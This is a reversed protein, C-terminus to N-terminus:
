IGTEWPQKPSPNKNNEPNKFTDIATNAFYGMIPVSALSYSWGIVAGLDSLLGPFIVALGVWLFTQIVAWAISIYSMLRRQKWHDTIFKGRKDAPLSGASDKLM